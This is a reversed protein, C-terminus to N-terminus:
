YQSKLFMDWKKESVAHTGLIGCASIGLFRLASEICGPGYVDIAIGSEPLVKLHGDSIKYGFNIMSM